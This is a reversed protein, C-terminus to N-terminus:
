YVRLLHKTCVKKNRSTIVIKCELKFYQLMSSRQLNALVVLCNKNQKENLCENIVFMLKDIKLRVSKGTLDEDKRKCKLRM